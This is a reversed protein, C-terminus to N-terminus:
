ALVRAIMKAVASSGFSRAGVRKGNQSVRWRSWGRPTEQAELRLVCQPRHSDRLLMEVVRTERVPEHRRMVANKEWRARAATVGSASTFKRRM